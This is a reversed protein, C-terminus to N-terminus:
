RGLWALLGAMEPLALAAFCGLWLLLILLVTLPPAPRHQVERLLADVEKGLTMAAVPKKHEAVVLQFARAMAEAEDRAPPQQFWLARRRAAGFLGALQGLPLLALPLLMPDQFRRSLYFLGAASLVCIVGQLWYWRSPLLATLIRGGDLPTLPLLNLLNIFLMLWIFQRLPGPEAGLGALSLLTALLVSPLPGLLAVWARDRASPQREEGFAVGGFFPLFLIQTQRYGCLRMALWHGGEHLLIIVLLLVSFTWDWLLAGGLLSLLASVGFLGFSVARSPRQRQRLQHQHQWLFALRSPPVGRADQQERRKRDAAQRARARAQANGERYADRPAAGARRIHLYLRLAGLLTLRASGDPQRHVLRREFLSQLQADNEHQLRRLVVMENDPWAVCDFHRCLREHAAWQEDWDAYRASQSHGASDLLLELPNNQSTSIIQGNRTLGYLTLVLQRANAINPADSLRALTRGDASRYFYCLADLDLWSPELLAQAKVLPEYGAAELEEHREGLLPALPPRPSADPSLKLTGAVPLPIALLARLISTAFIFFFLFVILFLDM